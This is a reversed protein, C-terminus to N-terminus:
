IENLDATMLPQRSLDLAMVQPYLDFWKHFIELSLTSPWCDAMEDWASLENEFIQQWNETLHKKFDEESEVEDVLYVTGEQRQEELTLHQQFEPEDLDLGNTWDVFPQKPLVVFASRNLLKM